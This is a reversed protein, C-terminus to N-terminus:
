NGINQGDPALVYGSLQVQLSGRPEAEQPLNVKLYLYGTQKPKIDKGAGIEFPKLKEGKDKGRGKENKKPPNNPKEVIVGLLKGLPADEIMETQIDEESFGEPGVSTKIALNYEGKVDIRFPKGNKIFAVPKGWTTSLEHAFSFGNAALVEGRLQKLKSEIQPMGPKVLSMAHLYDVARAVDGAREYESAIEYASRVITDDIKTAKADIRRLEKNRASSPTNQAFSTSALSAAITLLFCIRILTISISQKTM